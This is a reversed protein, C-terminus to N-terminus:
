YYLINNNNNNKCSLQFLNRQDFKKYVSSKIEAFNNLIIITILGQDSSNVAVTLTAVNLFYLCSHL